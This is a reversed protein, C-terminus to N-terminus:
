KNSFSVFANMYGICQGVEVQLNSTDHEYEVSVSGSMGLAVYEKLIAQVDSVGTGYPVDHGGPNFVNLDKLHSSVIRGKLIRIADIPKIGSRVWHGTDACSGIRSDRNKVISLVYNPDWMKYNPDATRPHNHFGVKIDFEKVMKEMTDLADVSETNLIGIGMSKAWAFLKRAKTEDRDISTVGFAVARIGIKQLTTKFQAVQDASMDPGMTVGPYDTGLKQGPYFEMAKAGAQAALQAAETATYRNFTWAQVSTTFQPAKPAVVGPVVSVLFSLGAVLVMFRMM